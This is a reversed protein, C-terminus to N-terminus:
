KNKIRSQRPANFSCKVLWPIPNIESQTFVYDYFPEKIIRPFVNVHNLDVVDKGLWNGKESEKRFTTQETLRDSYTFVASSKRAQIM